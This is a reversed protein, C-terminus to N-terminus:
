EEEVNILHLIRHVMPAFLIGAMTLFAIGSYLAYFTAFWKSSDTNLINVPGMGTLIMSSNYLSDLWGIQATYHYGITGLMLSFFVFVVTYSAYKLQRWAYQRVSIVPKKKHEFKM